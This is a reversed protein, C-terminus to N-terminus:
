GISKFDERRMHIWAQFINLFVLVFMIRVDGPKMRNGFNKWPGTWDNLRAVCGAAVVSPRFAKINVRPVTDGHETYWYTAGMKPSPIPDLKDLGLYHGT